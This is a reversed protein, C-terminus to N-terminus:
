GFYYHSTNSEAQNKGIKEADIYRSPQEEFLRACIPCCFSYTNEGYAITRLVKDEEVARGCVPDFLENREM